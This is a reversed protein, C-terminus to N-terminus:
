EDRIAVTDYNYFLVGTMRLVSGSPKDFVQMCMVSVRLLGIQLHRRSM